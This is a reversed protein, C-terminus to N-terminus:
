FADYKVVYRLVHRGCYKGLFMVSNQSHRIYHHPVLVYKGIKRFWKPSCQNALYFIRAWAFERIVYWCVSYIIKHTPLTQKTHKLIKSNQWSNGHTPGIQKNYKDTVGKSHTEFLYVHFQLFRVALYLFANSASSLIIRLM